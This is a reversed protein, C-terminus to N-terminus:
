RHQDEGAAGQRQLCPRGERDDAHAAQMPRVLAGLLRGAGAGTRSAELVDKAFTATTADKIIDAAPTGSQGGAKGFSLDM